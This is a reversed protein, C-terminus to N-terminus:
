EWIWDSYDLVDLNYLTNMQKVFDQIQNHDNVLYTRPLVLNTAKNLNILFVNPLKYIENISEVQIKSETMFDKYVLMDSKLEISVESGLADQYNERIFDRYHKYYKKAQYKPYLFYWLFGFVIFVTGMTTADSVFCLLAFILYAAPVVVISNRRKKKIRESKSAIFLQNSLYDSEELKYKIIM